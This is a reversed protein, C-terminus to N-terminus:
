PSSPPLDPAGPPLRGLVESVLEIFDVEPEGPPPAAEWAAEAGGGELPRARSLGRVDEALTAADGVGDDALLQHVEPDQLLAGLRAAPLRGTATVDSGLVMGQGTAAFRRYHNWLDEELIHEHRACVSQVLATYDIYSEGPHRLARSFGIGITESVEVHGLKALIVRLESATLFGCRGTDAEACLEHFARADAHSMRAALSNATYAEILSTRYFRRLNLAFSSLMSGSPSTDALSSIWTHGLAEAVSPRRGPTGRLCRQVFDKAEESIKSWFPPDFSFDVKGVRALIAHRCPAFFPPYGCLLLFAIAGVSWTDAAELSSQLRSDESHELHADIAESLLDPDLAGWASAGVEKRPPLNSARRSQLPRVVEPACFVLRCTEFLQTCNTRRGGDHPGSGARGMADWLQVKLDLGFDVLKLPAHIHESQFKFSDPTPHGHSLGARHLSDLSQLMHRVLMASEQEAFYQRQLIRDYVNGGSCGETILSVARCDQYEAGGPKRVALLRRVAGTARHVAVYANPDQLAPEKVDFLNPIQATSEYSRHDPNATQRSPSELVDEQDAGYSRYHRFDEREHFRALRAEYPVVSDVACSASSAVTTRNAEAWHRKEAGLSEIQEQSRHVKVHRVSAFRHGGLGLGFKLVGAAQNSARLQNSVPQQFRRIASVCDSGALTERDAVLGILCLAVGEAIDLGAQLFPASVKSGARTAVVEPLTCEYLLPKLTLRQGRACLGDCLYGAAKAECPKAARPLRLLRARTALPFDCVEAQWLARCWQIAPVIASAGAGDGLPATKSALSVGRHVHLQDRAVGRRRQLRESESLAVVESGYTAESMAGARAVAGISTAEHGTIVQGFRKPKRMRKATHQRRKARQALVGTAWDKWKQHDEKSAGSSALEVDPEIGDLFERCTKESLGAQVLACPEQASRDLRTSLGLGHYATTAFTLVEEAHRAMDPGDLPKAALGLEQLMRGNRGGAGKAAVFYVNFSHLECNVGPLDIAVHQIRSSVVERVGLVPPRVGLSDRVTVAVGALPVVGVTPLRPLAMVRWGRGACWAGLADVHDAVHGFEQLLVVGATTSTLGRKVSSKGGSANYTQSAGIFPGAGHGLVGFLPGTSSCHEIPGGLLPGPGRELEGLLPGSSSRYEARGVHGVLDVDGNVDGPGVLPRWIWTAATVTGDLNDAGSWAALSFQLERNITLPM